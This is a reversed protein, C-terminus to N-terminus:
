TGPKIRVRSLAEAALEQAGKFYRAHTRPLSEWSEAGLVVVEIEPQGAYEREAEFRAKLAMDARSYARHRVIKGASRDYILLYHRM